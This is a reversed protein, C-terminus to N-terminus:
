WSPVVLAAVLVGNPGLRFTGTVLEATPPLVM